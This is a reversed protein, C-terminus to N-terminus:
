KTLFLDSPFLFKSFRSLRWERIASFNFFLKLFLYPNKFSLETIIFIILLLKSLVTLIVLLCIICFIFSDFEFSKCLESLKFIFSIFSKFSISDFISESFSASKSSFIAFM